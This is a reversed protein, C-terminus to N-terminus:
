AATDTTRYVVYIPENTGDDLATFDASVTIVDGGNATPVAGELRLAPIVIQLVPASSAGITSDHTFTLVLSLTDQDLYADSTTEDAFEFELSGTVTARGVKRARTRKGAGGMNWGEGDLGQAVSVNGSRITATSGGTISALATTTPVTLSGASVTIVGHVFTFLADATPYSPTAYAVDRVTERGMFELAIKLIESNSFDFEISEAQCGPFTFTEVGADDPIGKQLTYSPLAGATLTHVQQYVGSDATETNTLAGLAAELLLGLGKTKAEVEVNGGADIKSTVRRDLRVTRQGPRMGEGQGYETKDELGEDTFELFRDVTVATGYVSEKKIGISCDLPTTM